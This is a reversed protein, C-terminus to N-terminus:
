ADPELPLGRAAARAAGWDHETAPVPPIADDPRRVLSLADQSCHPVCVGCGVCHLPAVAMVGTDDLALAGFQCYDACDECSICAGAEVQAVFPSRAVANAIGLESMGRLVGCSCTCCNCIYWLDQQHNGVSHVLGADAARQLTALAEERTLAQVSSAHDFAGPTSSLTMCVDLPHDCPDGILAKQKRCICDVVGWAQAADVLAAASEHPHIELDVNVAANVPIVRHVQPEVAGIGGFAKHFYDEFLQAFGADIRDVQFEYIGVVFPLLGYGLGDETRGAAILGRKTMDKLQKRLARPDGGTRAAIQQPTEKTRKLQAALAAEEPTFLYALLRLETGDDTPPFGNPLADLKEALPKYPALDTPTTM